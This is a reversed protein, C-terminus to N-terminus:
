KNLKFNASVMGELQKYTLTTYIFGESWPAIEYPNFCFLIGDNQILFNNDSIYVDGLSFISRKEELEAASKCDNDKVIQEKVLKAVADTNEGFLEQASIKLGTNKHFNIFSELAGGHAGGTYTEIRSTYAIIGEPSKDSVTGKQSYEYAFTEKYENDPEYFEKLEKEFSDTLSDTFFKQAEEFPMTNTGFLLTALQKNINQAAKSEGKACQVQIDITYNPYEGDSLKKKQNYSSTTFLVDETCEVSDTPEGTQQTNNKKDWCSVLLLTTIIIFLKNRM